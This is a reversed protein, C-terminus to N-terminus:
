DMFQVFLHGFLDALLWLTSTNYLARKQNGRVTNIIPQVVYYLSVARPNGAGADSMQLKVQLGVIECATIVTLIQKVLDDGTLSGSNFYFAVNWTENRGTRLRFVNASTAAEIYPDKGVESCLDESVGDGLSAEALTIIEEAFNITAGNKSATFGSEKGTKPNYVVGSRVKIEDFIIQVATEHHPGALKSSKLADAFQSSFRPVHCGDGGRLYALSRENTRDSPLIELSSEKLHQYGTKGFQLYHALALRKIRSDYRQQKNHNSM